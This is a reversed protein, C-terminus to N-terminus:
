SSAEKYDFTSITAAAVRLHKTGRTIGCSNGDDRTHDRYRFSIRFVVVQKHSVLNHSIFV